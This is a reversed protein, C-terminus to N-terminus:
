VDPLCIVFVDAESFL